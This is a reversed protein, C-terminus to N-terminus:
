VKVQEYHRLTTAKYLLLLCPFIASFQGKKKILIVILDIEINSLLNMKFACAPM